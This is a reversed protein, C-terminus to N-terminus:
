AVMRALLNIQNTAQIPELTLEAEIFTSTYDMTFVPLPEPMTIPKPTATFHNWADAIEFTLWILAIGIIVLCAIM